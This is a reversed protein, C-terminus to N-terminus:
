APPRRFCYDDASVVAFGSPSAAGAIVRWAVFETLKATLQTRRRRFEPQRETERNAAGSRVAKRAPQEVSPVSKTAARELAIPQAVLSQHRSVRKRHFRHFAGADADA